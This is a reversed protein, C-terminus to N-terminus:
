SFFCSLEENDNHYDHDHSYDQDRDLPLSLPLNGMPIFFNRRFRELVKEYVNQM